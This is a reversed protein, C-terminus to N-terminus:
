KRTTRRRGRFCRHKTDHQISKGLVIAQRCEVVRQKSIAFFDIFYTVMRAATFIAFSMNSTTTCSLHVSHRFITHPASTRMMWVNVVASWLCFYITLTWLTSAGYNTKTVQCGFHCLRMTEVCIQMKEKKFLLSVVASHSKHKKKTPRPRQEMGRDQVRIECYHLKGSSMEFNKRVLIHLTTRPKRTHPRLISFCCIRASIHLTRASFMQWGSQRRFRYVIQRKHEAPNMKCDSFVRMSIEVTNDWWNMTLKLKTAVNVHSRSEESRLVSAMFHHHAAAHVSNHWRLWFFIVNEILSLSLSRSIRVIRILLVRSSRPIPTSDSSCRNLRHLSPILEVVWRTTDSRKRCMLFELNTKTSWASQCECTALAARASKLIYRSQENGQVNFEWEPWLWLTSDFAHRLNDVANM